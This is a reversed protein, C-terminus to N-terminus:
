IGPSWGLVPSVLEVFQVHVHVVGRQMGQNCVSFLRSDSLVDDLQHIPQHSLPYHGREVQAGGGLVLDVSFLQLDFLHGVLQALGEVVHQGM